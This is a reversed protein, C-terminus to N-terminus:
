SHAFKEIFMPRVFKSHFRREIALIRLHYQFQSTRLSSRDCSSHHTPYRNGFISRPLGLNGYAAITCGRFFLDRHHYLLGQPDIQIRFIEISGISQRNCQTMMILLRIREGTRSALGVPLFKQLIIRVPYFFSFKLFIVSM